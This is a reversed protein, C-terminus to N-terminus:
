VTDDNSPPPNQGRNFFTILISQLATFASQGTTDMRQLVQYGLYSSLISLGLLLKTGASFLAALLNVALAAAFSEFAQQKIQRGTRRENEDIHRSRALAALLGAIYGVGTFIAWLWWYAPDLTIDGEFM